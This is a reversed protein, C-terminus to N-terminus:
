GRKPYYLSCIHCKYKLKLHVEKFHRKLHEKRKLKQPCIDCSYEIPNIKHVEAKHRKLKWRKPFEKSCLSCTIVTKKGAM